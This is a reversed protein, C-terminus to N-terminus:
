SKEEKKPLLSLIKDREDMHNCRGTAALQDGVKHYWMALDASKRVGDEFGRTFGDTAGERKVETLAKEIFKIPSCTLGCTLQCTHHYIEEARERLNM